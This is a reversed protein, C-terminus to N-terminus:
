SNLNKIIKSLVNKFIKIEEEPIEGRVEERTKDMIPLVDYFLQKGAKTLVVRKIRHDIQDSVRVVLSKDELSDIIRTITPKDRLCIEGLDKQSPSELQWIPGLVIWQDMSIDLGSNLVNQVFRKTMANQASQILMGLNINFKLSEEKSM